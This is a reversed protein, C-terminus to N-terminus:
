RITLSDKIIKPTIFLLLETKNDRRDSRRFLNGVLPLDGLLPVKTVDTRTEQEFIGGLVITDGNAAVVQTIVQKTDISPVGSFVQGVSDKKVDLEMIINDDPTIRPTVELSLAADKFQVTTAGSSAATQYPIQTGQLIKAKTKDATIVRPNSVVKGRNDSELASLELNVLNGNGLNLISLALTAPSGGPPVAPLNVNNFVTGLATTGGSAITNASNGASIGFADSQSAAIGYNRNSQNYGAGGGLRAGLQRGFRDDAIVVRAEIMVQRVPVDLQQVLRRAEELRAAIDQVFVTNTRADVVASGRKSLIKQQGDALIRRVDDAKAYAIRFSETRLPELESIQNQQELALKEKAALEESPAILLVNGNKRRSLGKSQLIIDLAQDWPVDKLRLTLAGGVTDSTIINLGTFDAIVQLIARVEVNQFNLSLKEGAYGPQASQVLRSPDEKVQRVELIFLNDTQYASYEWLGRPEVVMRVNDGQEFVDIFKVPTTFDGVDLKRVLNRAVTANLFDVIVLKGQSRIDIGVQSSALDVVVRGEGMDGRRFDVDRVASKPTGPTADAFRTPRAQPAAEVIAAGTADELTVLLSKGDLAATYTLTKALNFVLRVRTGAQVISVSRISGENVDVSTRGTGNSVNLLDLAIRPPNSVSFGQPVAALPDKFTARMVVKGGQQPVFALSELVNQQAQVSLALLLLCATGVLRAFTQVPHFANKV